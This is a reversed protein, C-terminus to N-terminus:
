RNVNNLFEKMEEIGCVYDPKMIDLASQPMYSVSAEAPDQVMTFGGAEKIARLGKAGDANAGSLLLGGCEKGYAEAATEFSIDIAPRSYHLKESFDLSFSRDKEILLHYDSPAIYITNKEIPDKEEVEKVNLSTKDSLLNALVSEGPKRHLVILISLDIDNRVAPLLQILVDLSGASGGIVLLDYHNNISRQAM